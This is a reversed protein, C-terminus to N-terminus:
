ICFLYLLVLEMLEYRKDIEKHMCIGNRWNWVDSSSLGILEMKARQSLALLHAARCVHSVPHFHNTVVCRLKNPHNISDECQYWTVVDREFAAHHIARDTQSSMVEAGNMDVILMNISDINTEVRALSAKISNLRAISAEEDSSSMVPMIGFWYDYFRGLM